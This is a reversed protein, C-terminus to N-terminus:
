TESIELMVILKEKLSIFQEADQKTYRNLLQAATQDRIYSHLLIRLEDKSLRTAMADVRTM